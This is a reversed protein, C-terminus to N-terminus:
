STKSLSHFLIFSLFDKVHFSIHSIRRCDDCITREKRKERGETEETENRKRISWRRSTNKKEKIYLRPHFLFDATPALRETSKRWRGRVNRKGRGELWHKQQLFLFCCSLSTMPAVNLLLLRNCIHKGWILVRKKELAIKKKRLGKIGGRVAQPLSHAEQCM